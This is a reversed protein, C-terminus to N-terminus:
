HFAVIYIYFPALLPINIHYFILYVSLDVDSLSGTGYFFAEFFMLFFATITHSYISGDAFVPPVVEFLNTRIEM